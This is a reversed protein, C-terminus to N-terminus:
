SRFSARRGTGGSPCLRPSFVGILDSGCKSHLKKMKGPVNRKTLAALPGTKLSALPAPSAAIELGRELLRPRRSQIRQHRRDAKSQENQEQIQGRRAQLRVAPQGGM